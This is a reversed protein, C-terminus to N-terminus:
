VKIQEKQNLYKQKLYDLILWFMIELIVFAIGTAFGLYKTLQLPLFFLCISLLIRSYYYLNKERTSTPEKFLIKSKAYAVFAGLASLVILLIFLDSRMLIEEGLLTSLVNQGFSITVEVIGVTIFKNETIFRERRFVSFNYTGTAAAKLLIYGNSDTYYLMEEGDPTKVKILADKVPTNDESYIRIRQEEGSVLRAKFSSVIKPISFIGNFTEFNEKSITVNYDGSSDLFLSVIGREDTFIELRKGSPTDVVVKADKVIKNFRDLVLIQRDDYLLNTNNYNLNVNFTNLGVFFEKEVINNSENIENVENNSDIIIKAKHVGLMKNSDFSFLLETSEGVELSTVVKKAVLKDDIYVDLLFKGASKVGSNKIVPKILIPDQIMVFEPIGHTRFFLEPLLCNEDECLPKCAVDEPLVLKYWNVGINKSDFRYSNDMASVYGYLKIEGSLNEIYGYYEDGIITKSLTLKESDEEENFKYFLNVEKVSVDKFPKVTIKIKFSNYTSDPIAQLSISEILNIQESPLVIKGDSIKQFLGFGHTAGDYDAYNYYVISDEPISINLIQGKTVRSFEYNIDSDKIIHIILSEISGDDDYLDKVIIKGEYYVLSIAAVPPAFNAFKNILQDNIHLLKESPYLNANKDCLPNQTTIVEFNHKLLIKSQIEGFVDRAYVKLKTLSVRQVFPGIIKKYKSGQKDLFIRKIESNDVAYDLYVEKIDHDSNVDVSIELFLSINDLALIPKIKAGYIFIPKVLTSTPRRITNFAGVCKMYGDYDNYSYSFEASPSINNILIYGDSVNNFSYRVVEDSKIVYVDLYQISGDDDRLSSVYISNDNSLALSVFCEESYFFPFALISFLFLNFFNFLRKM